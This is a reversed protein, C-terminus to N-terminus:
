LRDKSKSHVRLGSWILLASDNEWIMVKITDNMGICKKKWRFNISSEQESGKMEWKSKPSVDADLQQLEVNKAKFM